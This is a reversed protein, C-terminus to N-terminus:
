VKSLFHRGSSDVYHKDYGLQKCKDWSLWWIPSSYGPTLVEDDERTSRTVTRILENLATAVAVSLGLETAIKKPGGIPLIILDIVDARWNFLLPNGAISEMGAGDLYIRSPLDENWSPNIYRGLWWNIADPARTIDDWKFM